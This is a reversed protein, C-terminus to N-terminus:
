PGKVIREQHAPYWTELAEPAMSWVARAQRWAAFSGRSQPLGFRRMGLDKLLDVAMRHAMRRRYARRAWGQDPAHRRLMVALNLSLLYAVQHRNLRGAASVFHHLKATHCTLLLGARSIRYSGDLDEIPCYYRLAPEFPSALVASRRFTMRFGGFLATPVVKFGALEPPVAGEHYTKDYPIFVATKNMMLLKGLVWHLLASKKRVGDVNINTKQAGEIGQGPQHPSESAQIGAVKRGTDAAYVAMIEAACDPHMLSDDDIMFLIDAEAARAAQNRQVTLSPAEGQMYVLRTDPRVRAVIEGIVEAHQAWDASSDAVVVEVPPWSQTLALEVCRRLVELRDKTAITLGWTLPPTPTDTAAEAM